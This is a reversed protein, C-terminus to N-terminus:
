ADRPVFWAAFLSVEVGDEDRDTEQFEEMLAGLRAHFDAAVAPSLKSSMSALRARTYDDHTDGEDASPWLRVGGSRILTVFHDRFGDIVAAVSASADDEGMRGLVSGEIRLERQGPAYRHEVIGSVLRTEADRIVGVGELQRIHRYLKTQPEGLEEAIEKVSMLRPKVHADRMVVRLIALRLPDTLVRLTEIDEVVRVQDINETESMSVDQWM